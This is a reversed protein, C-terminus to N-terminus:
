RSFQPGLKSLRIPTNLSIASSGSVTLPLTGLERRIGAPTCFGDSSYTYCSPSVSSHHNLYRTFVLALQIKILVNRTHRSSLFFSSTSRLAVLVKWVRMTHLNKSQRTDLYSRSNWTYVCLYSYPTPFRAPFIFHLISFLLVTTIAGDVSFMQVYYAFQFTRWIHM